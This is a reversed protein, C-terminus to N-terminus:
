TCRLFFFQRFYGNRRKLFTNTNKYALVTPTQEKRLQFHWWEHWHPSGLLIAPGVLSVYIGLWVCLQEESVLADNSLPPPNGVYVTIKRGKKFSQSPQARGAARSERERHTEAQSHGLLPPLPRPLGRGERWSDLWCWGHVLLLSLSLRVSCCCLGCPSLSSAVAVGEPSGGGRGEGGKKRKGKGKQEGRWAELTSGVLYLRRQTYQASHKSTELSPSNAFKKRM